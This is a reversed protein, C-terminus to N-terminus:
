NDVARIVVQYAQNSIHECQTDWSLQLDLPQDQYTGAANLVAPNNVSFPGGTAEVLLQQDSDPDSINLPIELRDGAVVCFEDGSEIVPPLNECARVLIQMDRILSNILVGSRYENIRFAVNYEGQIKPSKWTFTGTVPDLSIQNDESTGINQPFIYNPVDEGPGQQPIVMEYSISDGDADYANPNHIFERGICAFDLPPQLLVASNNFGQFQPDLLTFTTSLFFPIDISNPPNVNLINSVRNPDTFYITYKARGPYTHEADYYNIKVDNPLPFGNGNSRKVFQSTGDGWFVELSDRDAATSSSKTYTTIRMRITLEGIQEYTIEGARNHTAYTQFAGLTLIILLISRLVKEIM